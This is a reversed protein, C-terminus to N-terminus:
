RQGHLICRTLGNRLRDRKGTDWDRLHVAGDRGIPPIYRQGNSRPPVSDLNHQVGRSRNRVGSLRLGTEAPNGRMRRCSSRIGAVRVPFSRVVEMRFQLGRSHSRDPISYKGSGFPSRLHTQQSPPRPPQGPSRRAPSGRKGPNEISFRVRVSVTPVSQRSRIEFIELFPSNTTGEQPQSESLGFRLFLSPSEPHRDTLGGDGTM